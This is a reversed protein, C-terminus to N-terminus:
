LFILQLFYFLCLQFNIVDFSYYIRLFECLYLSHDKTAKVKKYEFNGQTQKM